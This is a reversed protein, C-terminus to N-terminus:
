LEGKSEKVIDCYKGTCKHICEIVKCNNICCKNTHTIPCLNNCNM